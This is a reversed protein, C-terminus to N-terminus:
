DAQNLLNEILQWEQQVAEFCAWIKKESGAKLSNELKLSEQALKPFRLTLALGKLSHVLRQNDPSNGELALAQALAKLTRSIDKHGEKLLHEILTQNHNFAKLLAAQDIHQSVSEESILLYKLLVTKLQALELPKVLFGDMGAALTREREQQISSATLAIIPIRPQTHQAEWARLHQTAELGDMDPMQLDMLILDPAQHQAQEIAERGTSASIVETEPLLYNLMARSLLLNMPVDEAVLIRFRATGLPQIQQTELVTPEPQSLALLAMQLRRPTVPKMLSLSPKLAAMDKQEPAETATYLLLVPLPRNPSILAQLQAIAQCHYSDTDAILVEIKDPLPQSLDASNYVTTQINWYALQQQLGESTQASLILLHQYPLQVQNQDQEPCPLNLSLQFTSGRDPVSEVQIEGGMKEALLSAIHLGLGTGGFKRTTSSDVQSFAQFLKRQEAASIGIGTDRVSIKFRAQEADLRQWQLSLAVEGHETFKVANNLLNLLIQKFRVPDTVVAQPLDPPLNILLTLGKSGAAYRVMDLTQELIDPLNVKIAELELKGAEIKSLDLIDNIIELLAQGSVNVHNLYQQQLSNLATASLLETFGLISNLPTRLDHSMNALFISKARNARIAEEQTQLLRQEAQKHATIDREISIFHSIQGCTNYIPQVMLNVWYPLGNKRYSQIELQVAEEAQLKQILLAVTEPDTLPGHLFSSPQKGKIDCLPYGTMQTFSQNVWEIQGHPNTIVVANDTYEAVMALRAAEAATKLLHTHQLEAEACDALDRLAQLTEASLQRAQTDIICLTGIRSGDAVHLPAGAYFRICPEDTVLPNHSFRADELTDPVYLIVDNLIAHGCFSISRPTETASLGQRSKFWQRDADVLSILAIPVEFLHQALRTLRDFREEPPTDLIDMERLAQLRRSEDSPTAPIFTM